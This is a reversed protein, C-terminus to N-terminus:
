FHHSVFREDGAAWGDVFDGLTGSDPLAMNPYGTLFVHQTGNFVVAKATDSMYKQAVLAEIPAAINGVGFNFFITMVIDNNSVTLAIRSSPQDREITDIVKSLDTDCGTCNPPFVLHEGTQMQQYRPSVPEVFPSSDQFLNVSADPFASAFRFFNLTAGYGGASSGTM